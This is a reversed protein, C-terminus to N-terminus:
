KTVHGKLQPVALLTLLDMSDNLPFFRRRGDPLTSVFEALSLFMMERLGNCFIVQRNRPNSIPSGIGIIQIRGGVAAEHTPIFPFEIFTEGSM